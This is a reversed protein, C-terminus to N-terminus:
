SCSAVPSWAHLVHQKNYTRSSVTEPDITVFICILILMIIIIVIIMIIIIIIM